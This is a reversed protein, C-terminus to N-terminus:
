FQKGRIIHLFTLALIKFDFWWSRHKLYYLDLELRTLMKEITDTYGNYLTAYSTVGPRIQYLMYYRPDVQTIKDIFFKREPRYGIFAMDGCFVNWLQPLEDLHHSRLFRGARTLREDNDGGSHSLQPGSKEADLRMSRFKYIYFPRGFRGIREQRFIAPGGDELKIVVYSFLFLPSFVVLCGGSVFLDLLRKICRSVAGMGDPVFPIEEMPQVPSLLKQRVSEEDLLINRAEEQLFQNSVADAQKVESWNDRGYEKEWQRSAYRRSNREIVFNIMLHALVFFAIDVVLLVNINVDHALLAGNAASFLLTIGAVVSPAVRRKMGTRRLKHYLMNRDPALLSRGDVLRSKLVRLLDWAPILMTCFAALVVGDPVDMWEKEKYIYLIVYCILFGMPLTGSAGMFSAKPGRPLVRTLFFTFMLGFASSSILAPLYTGTYFSFALVVLLSVSCQGSAMGDVSDTLNITDILYMVLFVTIPMGVWFPVEYMGLLGYFNNVWMGSLPLVMAGCFLALVHTNIRVGHLDERLGEVFLGAMGLVLAVLRILQQAISEVNKMGQLRMDVLITITVSILVISFFSVGNLYKLRSGAHGSTKVVGFRNRNYFHTLRTLPMFLLTMVVSVSLSIIIDTLSLM